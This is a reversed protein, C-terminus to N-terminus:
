LARSSAPSWTTARGGGGLGPPKPGAGVRLPRHAKRSFAKVWWAGPVKWALDPTGLSMRVNSDYPRPPPAKLFELPGCGPGIAADDRPSSRLCRYRELSGLHNEHASLNPFSHELCSSLWSEVGLQPLSTRHERASPARSRWCVLAM